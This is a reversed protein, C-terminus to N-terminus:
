CTHEYTHCVLSVIVAHGGWAEESKGWFHYRFDGGAEGGGADRVQAEGAALEVGEGSGRGAEAFVGPAAEVAVELRPGPAGLTGHVEGTRAAHLQEFRGHELVALRLPPAVAQLPPHAEM